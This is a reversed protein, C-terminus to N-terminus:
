PIAVLPDPSAASRDKEATWGRNSSGPGAGCVLRHQETQCPVHSNRVVSVGMATVHVDFKLPSM